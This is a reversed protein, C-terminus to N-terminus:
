WKFINCYIIFEQFLSDGKKYLDSILIKGSRSKMNIIFFLNLFLMFMFIFINIVM